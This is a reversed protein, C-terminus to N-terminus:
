EDVEDETVAEIAAFTQGTLQTLPLPDVAAGRLVLTRSVSKEAISGDPLLALDKRVTLFEGQYVLATEVPSETLDRGSRTM